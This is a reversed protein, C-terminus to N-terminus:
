KDHGSRVSLYIKNWKEMKPNAIKNFKDTQLYLMATLKSRYINDRVFQMSALFINLIAILVNLIKFYAHHSNEDRGQAKWKM